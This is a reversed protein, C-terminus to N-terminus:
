EPLGERLLVARRRREEELDAKADLLEDIVDTLDEKAKSARDEAVKARNRFIDREHRLARIEDEPTYVNARHPAQAAAACVPTTIEATEPSPLRHLPRGTSLSPTASATELRVEAATGYNM